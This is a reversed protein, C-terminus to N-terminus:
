VATDYQLSCCTQVLTTHKDTRCGLLSKRVSLPSKCSHASMSDAQHAGCGAWVKKTIIAVVGGGEGGGRSGWRHWLHM